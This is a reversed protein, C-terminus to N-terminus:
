DGSNDDQNAKQAALLAAFDEAAEVMGQFDLDQKTIEGHFRQRVSKDNPNLGGARMAAEFERINTKIFDGLLACDLVIYYGLIIACIMGIMGMGANLVALGNDAELALTAAAGDIRGHRDCRNIPENSCYVFWNHGSCAPDSSEFRGTAPDVYRAQM